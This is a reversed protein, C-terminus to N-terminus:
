TQDTVSNRVDGTVSNALSCGIAFKNKEKNGTDSFLSYQKDM